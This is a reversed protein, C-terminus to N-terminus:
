HVQGSRLEKEAAQVRKEDQNCLIFSTLYNGQFYRLVFRKRMRDGEILEYRSPARSLDGVFDLRLDFLQTGFRPVYEFRQRKKGTINAGAVQGQEVAAAFHEIRRVGGFIKDPFLAIDGVAYIGKEDTELQENVPTGNPSSLPTNMVLDLNPEAGIAVVAVGAPFRNGSKTQINRLVTKGEFGNLSEGMMMQVGHARFHDTLWTATELDLRNQWLQQYRSMLTVNKKHHRLHAVIETAIFGGGIVVINPATQAIEGLAEIDRISRIYIVHGLNAGAVPPRRPRSGMALCAKKFEIAQGTSLVAIRREINIQSVAVGLRVEIKNKAYWAEENLLVKSLLPKQKLLFTGMIEPRRYPLYPETSVMTVTGKRDHKRLTEVVTGASVGGGIILYDRQIM